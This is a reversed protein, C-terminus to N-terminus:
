AYSSSCRPKSDGTHWLGLACTESGRHKTLATSYSPKAAKPPPFPFGMMPLLTRANPSICHSGSGGRGLCTLAKPLPLQLRPM